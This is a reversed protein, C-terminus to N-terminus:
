ESDDGESGFLGFSVGMCVGICIGTGINHLSIGFAISMLVTTCATLVWRERIEM